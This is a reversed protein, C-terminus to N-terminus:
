GANTEEEETLPGYAREALEIGLIRDALRRHLRAESEHPYQKRLSHLSLAIAAKNLNAVMMLKKSIPVQRILDFQLKEIKPDTDSYYPM